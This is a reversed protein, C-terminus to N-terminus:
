MSFPMSSEDNECSFSGSEGAITDVGDDADDDGEGGFNEATSATNNVAM